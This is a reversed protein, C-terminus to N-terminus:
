GLSYFMMALRYLCKIRKKISIKYAISIVLAMLFEVPFSILFSIFSDFLWSIQTEKYVECFATVFYYYFLMIIFEALIFLLLKCKLKKNIKIIQELMIIKMKNNIKMKKNKKLRKEQERFVNEINDKSDIFYQLSAVIIFSIIFSIFSITLNNMFNFWFINDGKYNYKDSINESFYFLTNLALDCSYIFIFIILKISKLELPSELFFTSLINEKALLCIIYLRWLTRKDYIIAEEYEFNDLFYKSEYTSYNITNNADIRILYYDSDKEAIKLKKKEKSKYLMISNKKKEKPLILSKKKDKLKLKKKKNNSYNFIFIPKILNNGKFTKIKRLMKNKSDDLLKKKSTSCNEHKSNSDKIKKIKYESNNNRTKIRNKNNDQFKQKNTKILNINNKKKKLPSRIVPFYHYNKMENIIYKRIPFIGTFCYYIIIPLHLATLITFLIFGINKFKNDLRFVLNYCKIVGFSTESFLDLYIKDFKLEPKVTEVEEKIKCTCSVTKTTLNIKNYECNNDCLSYNQYIDSIRDQLIIDSNNESYPYCIDNFFNDKINFVDVGIDLYNSIEEFDLKTKNSIAYNIEIKDNECVTLDLKQKKDDFVVYEVQNTLAKEDYKYIEIQIVTLIADPSLNNKKRLTNECELFNIYTSSSDFDKYNIPSVKVEYDNAQIEYVKGIEVEEILENLNNSFEEKTKNTTKKILVINNSNMVNALEDISVIINTTIINTSELSSSIINKNKINTSETSSSIINKNKINTSEVYSSIINTTRVNTSEIFSSIINTTRINTSKISSSIVNTTKINTSKMSSSIINTTKINTSKISSSIINSTKINTSKISSSIINSTKINTSKISSSIINSTKINTSKISSSIINTTKINTSKISSSIINSTKINTSKMSSSIINITKINTSKINTSKMSSSIINTAKINTSKMSSSIINNTIRNSDFIYDTEESTRSIITSKILSDSIYINESLYTSISENILVISSQKNCSTDFQAELLKDTNGNNCSIGIKYVNNYNIVSSFSNNECLNISNDYICYKKFQDNYDSFYMTKNFSLSNINNVSTFCTLIYRNATEFFDLTFFRTPQSCNNLYKYEYNNWKNEIIDFSICACDKNYNIYCVFAKSNNSYLVSKINIAGSNSKFQSSKLSTESLDTINFNVTGLETNENEYFCTLVKDDSSISMIQCSVFDCKSLSSGGLNNRLNYTINIKTFLQKDGINNEMLFINLNKNINIFAIFLLCIRKGSEEKCEKFILNSPVIDMNEIKHKSNFAANRSFNYLYNKIIIYIQRYDVETQNLTAISSIMEAESNNFIQQENVLQHTAIKTLMTSNYTIIQFTTFSFVIQYNEFFFLNIFNNVM